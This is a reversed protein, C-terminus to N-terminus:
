AMISYTNATLTEPYMDDSFIRKGKNNSTSETVAKKTIM